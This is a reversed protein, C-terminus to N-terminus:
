ESGEHNQDHAGPKGPQEVADNTAGSWALRVPRVLPHGCPRATELQQQRTQAERIARDSTAAATRAQELQGRLENLALGAYKRKWSYFAQQSVGLERCIDSVKKGAEAQRLAHMIQEETHAKRPM